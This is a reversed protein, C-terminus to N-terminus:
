LVIMKQRYVGQLFRAELIYTGASYDPLSINLLSGSDQYLLQTILQGYIDYITLEKLTIHAGFLFQFDGAHPNPFVLISDDYFDSTGVTAFVETHFDQCGNADTVTVEYTFGEIPKEIVSTITGDNWLYTYPPTGGTVQAELDGNANTTFDVFLFDPEFIIRNLTLNCDNADSISCSYSGPALDERYLNTDGDQWLVVYPATGSLLDIQIIGDDEGFCTVDEIAITFDLGPVNIIEAANVATCGENDTLTLTYIGDALGFRMTDQSMDSWDYSYPTQGGTVQVFIGGGHNSCFTYNTTLNLIIAQAPPVVIEFSATCAGQSLQVIYNGAPLDSRQSGVFNDFLWLVEIASDLEIFVQGSTEGACNPASIVPEFSPDFTMLTYSTVVVSDCGDANTFIELIPESILNEECSTEMIFTTDLLTFLLTETIVLLPCESSDIFMSDVGVAAADCTFEQVFMQEQVDFTITQLIISDCGQFSSLTDMLVGVEELNCTTSQLSTIPIPQFIKETILLSDCGFINILFTTDADVDLPDCTQLQVATIDSPQLIFETIQLQECLGGDILISDAGVQTADCVFEVLRVTDIAVLIPTFIIISDCQESTILVLTDPTLEAPDCTFIDIEVPILPVFVFTTIVLSDCDVGSLVLTDNPVNARCSIEEVVTQSPEIAETNVITTSDCGLSSSMTMTDIGYPGDCVSLFVFVTDVSLNNYATIQVTPCDEGSINITDSPLSQCVDIINYITDITVFEYDVVVVSDCGIDTTFFITETLAQNPDCTSDMLYTTDISVSFFQSVVTSDCGLMTLYTMTDAISNVNECTEINLYTTDITFFVPIVINVEGTSTTVTDVLLSPDCTAINIYVTDQGSGELFTNTILLSDCGVANTLILTDLGVLDPNSTPNQILSETAQLPYTISLVVSDCGINTQFTTTDSVQEELGCVSSEIFFTDVPSFLVASIVVSDCTSTAFISTDIGVQLPDCTFQDALFITDADSLIFDTVVLSDCGEVNSFLLSDLGVVEADCTFAMLSTTEIEILTNTNIVLSDCGVASTLILTDIRVQDENCVPTSINTTVSELLTFNTIIISDCFAGSLTDIQTLSQASDCTASFLITPPFLGSDYNTIVLSDCGFFNQFLSTDPNPMEECTILTLITTDPASYIYETIVVSDCTETPFTQTNSELQSIDCTREELFTTDAASFNTTTIVLSDCTNQNTLFLTDMGVDDQNCSFQQMQITDSNAFDTTTIVLSDCTNQNTFILTDIGVDEIDCSIQQLRTTDASLFLTTTIVLSDCDTQNTFFLTDVGANSSDCDQIEFLTTDPGTFTTITIEVRACSDTPFLVESEGALSEDCTTMSFYTTDTQFLITETILIDPCEGDLLTPISDVGVEEPICTKEIAFVTDPIEYFFTTIIISDCDSTSIVLTDTSSDDASDCTQLDVYTTDSPSLSLQTIVLSDCNFINTFFVTDMGFEEPNCTSEFFTLTDSTAVLLDLIVISDCTASIAFTDRYTGTEFLEAEGFPFIAGICITDTLMTEKSGELITVAFFTDSIDGCIIPNTGTLNNNFESLSLGSNSPPILSEDLLDFSFGFIEYMGPAYATLNPNTVIDLIIDNQTILYTYGYVNESPADSLYTPEIILNLTDAGTCAILPDMGMSGADAECCEIGEQDSFVISFDELIGMDFQIPDIVELLWQGNVTGTNFNLLSGSNPLYAGTYQNLGTLDANDWIVSMGPDPNVFAINSVFSVDFGGFFVGSASTTPGILTVAQGAPSILNMVLEAPYSHNFKLEVVDIQNTTLSNNQAGDIVFTATSIEQDLIPVPCNICGCEQSYVAPSLVFCLWLLTYALPNYTRKKAL